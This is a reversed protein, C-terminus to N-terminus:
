AAESWAAAGPSPSATAPESTVLVRDWDQPDVDVRLVVSGDPAPVFDGVYRLDGDRVLWLRYVEGPAPPPVDDGYVYFHDMGPATVETAPGLETTTAGERGALEIAQGIDAASLQTLTAEDADLQTLGVGGLGIVLVVSAAVAAFRAPNRRRPRPELERHLRPLLTEPPPVPDALLALEGRVAGFADLTARCGACTPVHETLLGEAHAADEGTLGDLAYGALLEEIRAHDETM